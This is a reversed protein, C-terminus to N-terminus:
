WETIGIKKMAKKTEEVSLHRLEYLIAAIEEKRLLETDLKMKEGCSVRYTHKERKIFKAVCGQYDRTQCVKQARAFTSMDRADIPFQTLNIIAISLCGMIIM